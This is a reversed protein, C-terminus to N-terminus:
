EVVTFTREDSMPEGGEQGGSPDDETIVVTYEGPALDLEFSFDSFRQGEGTNTFGSGIVRGDQRLEWLLTAEFVAADGTVQVPSRVTAGESPTNLQVLQRVDLPAARRLLDSVDVGDLQDVEEGDVLVQVPLTGFERDVLSAAATATYVLQQIALDGAGRFPTGSVSLDVRIVGDRVQASRLKASPNWLTEYAQVPPRDIMRVIATEIANHPSDVPIWERALRLGARTDAVFYVPVAGTFGEEPSESHAPSPEQTQPSATEPEDTPTPIPSSSPPGPESTVPASSTTPVVGPGAVNQGPDRLVAVGIGVAAVATVAAVAVGIVAPNQWLMTWRPKRTRALISELGGPSPYVKAAEQQLARRLREEEEPTWKETM